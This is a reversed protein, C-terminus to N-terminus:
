AGWDSDAAFTQAFPEKAYRAGQGTVAIVM